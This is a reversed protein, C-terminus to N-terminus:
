LVLGTFTSNLMPHSADRKSIDTIPKPWAIALKPDRANLAAESFNSYAKSHLYLLECRDDLSQFGHAFGEPILLAFRNTSSLEEAHWQLFTPSNTRLDLAVDWISGKLCTVLKMEVHPPNQYHMGRVTGCKETLSQNIQAVPNCWGFAALEEACFLRSFYGRSDGTQLREIRKLGPLPLDTVKFRSM